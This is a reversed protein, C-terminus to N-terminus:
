ISFPTSEKVLLSAILLPYIEELYKDDGPLLINYYVKFNVMEQLLILSAYQIKQDRTLAYKTKASEITEAM